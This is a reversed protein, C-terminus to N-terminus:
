WNFIEHSGDQETWTPAAMQVMKLFEMTKDTLKLLYTYRMNPQWNMFEAPVRAVLHLNNTDDVDDIIDLAVEYDSQGTVPFVAYVHDPLTLATYGSGSQPTASFVPEAAAGKIPYSLAVTGRTVIRATAATPYFRINAIHRPPEEKTYDGVFTLRQGQEDVFAFMVKSFTHQFSLTVPASGWTGSATSSWLKSFYAPAASEADAAFEAKVKTDSDYVSFTVGDAPAVAFFRYESAAPDWYKITQGNIGVYEWGTTNSPTTNASAATYEVTYGGMVTQSESDAMIKVGYVAFSTCVESLADARASQEAVIASNSFAIALPAGAAPEDSSHSCAALALAPLLSLIKAAKTM